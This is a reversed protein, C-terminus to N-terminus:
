EVKGGERKNWVVAPACANCQLCAVYKERFEDWYKDWWDPENCLNISGCFPCPAAVTGDPMIFRPGTDTTM